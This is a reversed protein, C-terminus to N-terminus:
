AVPPRLTGGVATTGCRAAHLPQDTGMPRAEAEDLDLALLLAHEQRRRLHRSERRTVPHPDPDPLVGGPPEGALDLGHERATDGGEEARDLRDTARQEDVRHIPTEAETAQDRGALRPFGAGPVPHDRPDGTIRVTMLAGGGLDGTSQIGFPRELHGALARDRAMRQRHIERTIRQDLGLSVALTDVRTLCGATDVQPGQREDGDVAGIRAIEVVRDVGFRRRLTEAQDDRDGIDAMIDAETRREIDRRTFAAGRDVERPAHQRHQRGRQRVMQARELGLDIPQAEGGVHADALRTQQLVETEIRGHHTAMPTQGVVLGVRRQELTPRISLLREPRQQRRQQRQHIEITGQELRAMPATREIELAAFGVIFEVAVLPDSGDTLVAAVLRVFEDLLAHDEGIDRRGAGELLTLRATEVPDMARGLLLTEIAQERREGRETDLGFQRLFHLRAVQAADGLAEALRLVPGEDLRQDHPRHRLRDVIREVDPVEAERETLVGVEGRRDTTIGIEHHMARELRHEIRPIRAAPAMALGFERHRTRLERLQLLPRVLGIAADVSEELAAIQPLPEALAELSQDGGHDLVATEHLETADVDVPQQPELRQAVVIVHLLAAAM